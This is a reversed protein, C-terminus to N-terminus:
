SRSVHVAHAPVIIKSNAARLRRLPSGIKSTANMTREILNSNGNHNCAYFFFRFNEDMLNNSENLSNRQAQMSHLSM